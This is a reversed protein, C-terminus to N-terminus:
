KDPQNMGLKYQEIVQQRVLRLDKGAVVRDDYFACISEISTIFLAALLRHVLVLPPPSSM